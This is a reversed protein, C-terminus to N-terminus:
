LKMDTLSRGPPITKGKRLAMFQKIAEHLGIPRVTFVENASPFQSGSM